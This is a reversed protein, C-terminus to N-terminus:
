GFLHTEARDIPRTPHYKREAQLRAAIADDKDVFRGLNLLRAAVCIKAAWKQSHKDWYVGTVGTSNDVRKRLNHQNVSQVVDRLNAMRNDTKIHNIHDIQHSPLVGHVYLWALRHLLYRRKDLHCQLYGWTNLSGLTAGIRARPGETTLWTFIGTELCYNVREKLRAQTIREHAM